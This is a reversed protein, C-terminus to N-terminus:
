WVDAIINCYSVLFRSVCEGPCWTKYRDNDRDYMEHCYFAVGCFRDCTWSSTCSFTNLRRQIQNIPFNEHNWSHEMIGRKKLPLFDNSLRFLWWCLWDSGAFKPRIQFAMLMFYKLIPPSSTRCSSIWTMKMQSPRTDFTTPCPCSCNITPAVLGQSYPTVTLVGWNIKFCGRVPSTSTPGPTKMSSASPGTTRTSKEFRVPWNIWNHATCRHLSAPVRHCWNLCCCVRATRGSHCCSWIQM